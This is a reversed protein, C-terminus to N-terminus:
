RFQWFMGASLICCSAESAIPPQIGPVWPLVGPVLTILCVHDYADMIQLLLVM